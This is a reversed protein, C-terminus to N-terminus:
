IPKLLASEWLTQRGLIVRAAYRRLVEKADM